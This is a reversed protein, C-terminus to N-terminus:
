RFILSLKDKNASDTVEHIMRLSHRDGVIGVLKNHITKSTYRANKPSKSLHDAHLFDFFSFLIEKM